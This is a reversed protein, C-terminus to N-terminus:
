FVNLFAEGLQLAFPLHVCLGLLSGKNADCDWQGRGGHLLHSFLDM